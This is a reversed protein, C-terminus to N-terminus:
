LVQIFMKAIILNFFYRIVQDVSNLSVWYDFLEPYVVTSNRQFIM